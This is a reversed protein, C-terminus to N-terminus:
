RDTFNSYDGKEALNFLTICKKKTDSFASELRAIRNNEELFKKAKDYKVYAHGVGTKLVTAQTKAWLSLDSNSPAKTYVSESTEIMFQFPVSSVNSFISSITNGNYDSKDFEGIGTWVYSEANLELESHLTRTQENDLYVGCEYNVYIGHCALDGCM